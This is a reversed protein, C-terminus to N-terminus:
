FVPAQNAFARTRDLRLQTETRPRGVVLEYDDAYEPKIAGNEDLLWTMAMRQPVRVRGPEELTGFVKDWLNITVGHNALPHGFHHHFHNRRLRREYRNAVPKRHARYHHLDYFGYGFIWGAALAIAVPRALVLDGGLFFVVFGFGTVGAWSIPWKELVSDRDAHHRLHERSALGKGRMAHMGFRHMAYEGFTWAFWGALFAPVLAIV